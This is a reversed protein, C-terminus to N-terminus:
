SRKLMKRNFRFGFDYVTREYLLLLFEVPCCHFEFRFDYDCNWIFSLFFLNLRMCLCFCKKYMKEVFIILLCCDVFVLNFVFRFFVCSNLGCLNKMNKRREKVGCIYIKHKNRNTAKKREM